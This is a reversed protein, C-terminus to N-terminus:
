KAVSLPKDHLGFYLSKVQAYLKLGDIGKERGIGSNKFGGFPTSIDGEGFSNVTVTGARLARAGRIARKVNSTFISAAM